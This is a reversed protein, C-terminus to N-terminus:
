RVKKIIRSIERPMAVIQMSFPLLVICKVHYKVLLLLEALNVQMFPNNRDRYFRDFRDLRDFRDFQSRDDLTNESDYRGRKPAMDYQSTNRANMDFDNCLNPRFPNRQPEETNPVKEFHEVNEPRDFSHAGSRADNENFDRAINSQSIASESQQKQINSLLSQIEPNGLINTVRAVINSNPDSDTPDCKPSTNFQSPAISESPAVSQSPAISQSPANPQSPTDNGSVLDLGPIAANNDCSKSSFLSSAVTKELVFNNVGTTLVGAGVNTQSVNEQHIGETSIENKMATQPPPNSQTTEVTQENRIRDLRKQRLTERRQLLQQRCREMKMVFDNYLNRDPHNANTRKWEALQNEWKQFNEEFAIEEQSKEERDNENTTHDDRATTNRNPFNAQGGFMRSSRNSDGSNNGGNNNNGWRNSRNNRRFGDQNSQSYSQEFNFNKEQPLASIGTQTQNIHTTQPEHMKSTNDSQQQSAIRVQPPPQQLNPPQVHMELQAPMEPPQMTQVSPQSTQVPPPPPPPQYDPLPPPAVFGGQITQSNM